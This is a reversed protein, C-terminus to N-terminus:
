LEARTAVSYAVNGSQEILWRMYQSKPLLFELRPHLSERRGFTLADVSLLDYAIQSLNLSKQALLQVCVLTGFPLETECGLARLFGSLRHDLRRCVVRTKRLIVHRFRVVHGTEVTLAGFAAQGSAGGRAPLRRKDVLRAAAAICLLRGDRGSGTIECQVQDVFRLPGSTEGIVLEGLAFNPDLLWWSQMAHGCGLESLNAVLIVSVDLVPKVGLAPEVYPLDSGAHHLGRTRVAKM